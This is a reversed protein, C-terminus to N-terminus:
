RKWCLYYLILFWYCSFLQFISFLMSILCCIGSCGSFWLIFWFLFCSFNFSSFMLFLSSSMPRLLSNKSVIGLSMLLLLLFLHTPCCCIAFSRCLLLFSWCFPFQDIPSYSFINECWTESLLNIHLLCLSSIYSFFFDLKFHICSGFPYKKLSICIAFLHMFFHEVDSIM